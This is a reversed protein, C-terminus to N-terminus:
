RGLRQTLFAAAAEPGDSARVALDYCGPDAGDDALLGVLAAAPAARRVSLASDACDASGLACDFVVAEAADQAVALAADFLRGARVARWGAGMLGAFAEAWPGACGALVAVSVPAPGGLVDLPIGHETMFRVLEPREVRRDSSGPLRYHRIKGADCWKSFTRPAVRCALAAMGTTFVKCHGFMRRQRATPEYATASTKGNVGDKFSSMGMM